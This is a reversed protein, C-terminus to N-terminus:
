RACSAQALSLAGPRRARRVCTRAEYRLLSRRGLFESCRLHPRGQADTDVAKNAQMNVLIELREQTVVM